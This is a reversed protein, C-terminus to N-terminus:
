PNKGTTEDSFIGLIKKKRKRTLWKSLNSYYPYHCLEGICSIRQPTPVFFFVKTWARSYVMLKVQLQYRFAVCALRETMRNEIAELPQIITTLGLM